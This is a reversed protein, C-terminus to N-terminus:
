VTVLDIKYNLHNNNVMDQLITAVFYKKSQGLKKALEIGKKISTPKRDNEIDSLRTVSLGIMEAFQKQTMGEYDTLRINKILMGFTFPEGIISDLVKIADKSM